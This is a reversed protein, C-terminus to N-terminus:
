GISRIMMVTAAIAVILLVVLVILVVNLITGTNNAPSSSIETRDSDQKESIDPVEKASLDEAQKQKRIKKAKKKKKREKTKSVPRSYSEQEDISDLTDESANVFDDNSLVIREKTATAAEQPEADPSEAEVPIEPAEVPTPAPEEEVIPQLPLPHESVPLIDPGEDDTEADYAPQEFVSPSKMPVDEEPSEDSETVPLKMTSGLDEEQEEMQVFHQNRHMAQTGDLQKLINIQTDDSVSTGQNLNYQKVEDILNDMVPTKPLEPQPHEFLHNKQSRSPQNAHSLSENNKVRSLRGMNPTNASVQAETTEQDLRNRLDRNKRMRSYKPM